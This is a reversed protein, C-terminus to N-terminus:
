APVVLTGERVEYDVKMGIVDGKKAQTVPQHEIQMSDVRQLLESDGRKLKVTEGVRLPSALDVIAVGIHDYYHVVKGLHKEKARKAVNTIAARRKVSVPKARRMLKKMKVKKLKMVKTVKVKRKMTKKKTKM